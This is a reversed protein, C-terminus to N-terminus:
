VNKGYAVFNARYRRVSGQKFFEDDVNRRFRQGPDVGRKRHAAIEDRVSKQDSAIRVNVIELDGM